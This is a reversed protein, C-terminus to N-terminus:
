GHAPGHVVPLVRTEQVLVGRGVVRWMAPLCFHALRHEFMGCRLYAEFEEVIFDPLGGAQEARERYADLHEGRGSEGVSADPRGLGMDVTEM